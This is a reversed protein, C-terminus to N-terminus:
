KHPRLWVFVGWAFTVFAFIIGVILAVRELTIKSPHKKIWDYGAKNPQVALGDSRQWAQILGMCRPGVFEMVRDFEDQSKCIKAAIDGATRSKTADPEREREAAFAKMLKFAVREASRAM